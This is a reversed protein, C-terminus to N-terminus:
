TRRPSIQDKQRTEESGNTEESVPRDGERESLEGGVVLYGTRNNTSLCM